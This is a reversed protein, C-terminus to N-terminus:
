KTASDVQKKAANLLKERNEARTKQMEMAIDTWWQPFKLMDVGIVPTLTEHCRIFTEHGCIDGEADFVPKVRVQGRIKIPLGFKADKIHHALPAVGEPIFRVPITM